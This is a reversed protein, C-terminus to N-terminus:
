FFRKYSYPTQFHSGIFSRPADYWEGTVVNICTASPFTQTDVVVYVIFVGATYPVVILHDIDCGILHNPVSLKRHTHYDIVVNMTSSSSSSSNDHGIEEREDKKEHYAVTDLHTIVGTGTAIPWENSLLLMHHSEVDVRIIDNQSEERPVSLRRYDVTSQVIDHLTDTKNVCFHNSIGLGYLISTSIDFSEIHRWMKHQVDYWCVWEKKDTRLMYLRNDLIGFHTRVSVVGSEGAGEGGRMHRPQFPDASPTRQQGHPLVGGFEVDDMGSLHLVRDQKRVMWPCVFWLQTPTSPLFRNSVVAAMQGDYWQIKGIFTATCLDPYKEEKEEKEKEKYTSLECSSLGSLDFGHVGILTEEDPGKTDRFCQFWQNKAESKLYSAALQILDTPLPRCPDTNLTDYLVSCLTKNRFEPFPKIKTEKKKLTTANPRKSKKIKITQGFLTM